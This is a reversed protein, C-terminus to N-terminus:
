YSTKSNAYHAAPSVSSVAIGAAALLAIVGLIRRSRDSIAPQM